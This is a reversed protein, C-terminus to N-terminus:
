QAHSNDPANRYRQENQIEGRQYFDDISNGAETLTDTPGSIKLGLLVELRTYIDIVNSPKIIQGGKGQLIASNNIIVDFSKNRIDSVLKLLTISSFTKRQSSKNGTNTYNLDNKNINTLLNDKEITM